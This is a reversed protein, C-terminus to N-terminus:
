APTRRWAFIAAICAAVYFVALTRGLGPDGFADMAAGTLPRGVLGGVIYIMSFATNARAIDGGRVRQGLLALGVPYISFSIGGWLMIVGITGAWQAPILALGLVLVASALTCGALVLRRDAHDALWGVPWQLIVNGLVFASLWLAGTDPAVGASVAYVPLFSFAVQEGLGCAFAAFMALPVLLVVTAFGSAADVRIRPASRWYPLLPVAVLLSLAAGTLFPAPGYVGVLQLVMPGLAMGVAVLASYVGMVRGRRSEEVVVNMWIESVVWPVGGIAGHLFNLLGWAVPGSTITYTCNILAGIVVAGIIAPVAGLRAALAPIRMGFSLMGIGWVASVIGITLKDYGQQELALPVLPMGVGAQLGIAACAAFVPLLTHRPQAAAPSSPSV